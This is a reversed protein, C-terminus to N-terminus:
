RQEHWYQLVHTPSLATCGVRAGLDFLATSDDRSRRPNPGVLVNSKRRKEASRNRLLSSLVTEAATPIYSSAMIPSGLIANRKIGILKPTSPVVRQLCLPLPLPEIKFPRDRTTTGNPRVWPKPKYLSM